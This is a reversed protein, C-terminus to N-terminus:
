EFEHKLFTDSQPYDIKIGNAKEGAMAIASKVVHNMQRGPSKDLMTRIFKQAAEKGYLNFLQGICKQLVYFNDHAGMFAFLYFLFVNRKSEMRQAWLGLMFAFRKWEAPSLKWECIKEHVQKYLKDFSTKGQEVVKAFADVDRFLRIMKKTIYVTNVANDELKEELLDKCSIAVDYLIPSSTFRIVLSITIDETTNLLGEHDTNGHWILFKGLPIDPYSIKKSAVIAKDIFNVRARLQRLFFGHKKHTNETISLPKHFCDNLPTWTTYFHDIYDYGDKHKPGIESTDYSFHIIPYPLTLYNVESTLGYTIQLEKLIAKALLFSANDYRLLSRTIGKALEIYEAKGADFKGLTVNFESQVERIATQLFEDKKQVILKMADAHQYASMSWGEELLEAKM